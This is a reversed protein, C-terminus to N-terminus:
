MRAQEVPEAGGETWRWLRFQGDELTSFTFHTVWDGLLVLDKGASHEHVPRHFHGLVVADFGEEFKPGSIESRIRELGLPAQQQQHDHSARSTGLALPIGVDPHLWRYLWIHPPFRLIAKLIRYGGDGSLLGDGHALFIRRGQLRLDLPEHSVQIGLETPLFDGLWFDHNGGVYTIPIGAQRVQQLLALVAFHGRPVAHRYEFWFDFLDGNIYVPGPQSRVRALFSGLLALKRSERSADRQGFHADSLFYVPEPCM